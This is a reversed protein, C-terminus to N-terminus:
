VAGGLELKVEPKADDNLASRIVYAEGRRQLGFAGTGFPDRQSRFGSEGERMLTIGARLMMRIARVRDVAHRGGWFTEVAAAAIPHITQEADSFENLAARCAPRPLDLRRALEAFAPVSADLHALLAARGGGTVRLLTAVLEENFGLGALEAADVVLGTTLLKTRVSDLVCRSEPGIV